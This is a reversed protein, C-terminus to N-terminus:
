RFSTTDVTAVTVGSSRVMLRRGDPSLRLKTNWVDDARPQWSLDICVARRQVTGLAHIFPKGNMRHYLTYVWTGTRSSVRAVPYGRMTETEGKAVIVGPLLRDHALDFARVRYSVLDRGSAHQIVFMTRGDPALADFGFEGPLTLTKELALDRTSVVMFRSEPRLGAYTPPQSLVLTKGDPSLGGAVGTSTVAPIGWAGDFTAKASETGNRVARLDTSEGSRSVTYRVDGAPAAVSRVVGPWPGVALAAGTVVAAIAVTAGVLPVRVSV